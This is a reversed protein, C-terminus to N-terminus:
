YNSATKARSKYVAKTMTVAAATTIRDEHALVYTITINEGFIDETM